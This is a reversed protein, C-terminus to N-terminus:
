PVDNADATDDFIEDSHEIAASAGRGFIALRDTLESTEVSGQEFYLM